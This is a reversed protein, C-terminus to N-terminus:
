TSKLFNFIIEFLKKLARASNKVSINNLGYSAILDISLQHVVFMKLATRKMM